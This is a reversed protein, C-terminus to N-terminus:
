RGGVGAGAHPIRAAQLAREIAARDQGPVSERGNVVVQPTFMRRDGRAEAYARQRATHAPRALTDKWGLYDWYDVALSLAIIGPRDALEGILKDAPPCSSCGQSTFLEVVLPAEQSAAAPSGSVATAAILALFVRLRQIM